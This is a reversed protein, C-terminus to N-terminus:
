SGAGAPTEDASKAAEIAQRLQDAYDPRGGVLVSAVKGDRDIVVTQPIARVGYKEATAGDIDLAVAIKLELREMADEITQRDEQLNVAFFHVEDGELAAAVEELKPMTQMCPGCWSAWFDLVVVKGREEALDLKGGDLLDLQFEPAPSGALSSEAGAAPGGAADATLYRPDPAPRLQWSAYLLDAAATEIEQGLLLQDVESVDVQCNGLLPSKGVVKEDAVRAPTFSLRVGDRRVAQLKTTGADPADAADADVSADDALIADGSEGGAGAQEDKDDDAGKKDATTAPKKLWIIRIIRDRAVQKSELRVEVNLSQESMSELRGRLFDGGRSEILHTPPNNRQMRPLTLLRDRKKEDILQPHSGGFREWAQISDHPLFESEIVSSRFTVGRDDITALECPIRDGGRLWLLQGRSDAAATAEPDRQGGGLANLVGFVGAPRVVVQRARVLKEQAQRHQQAALQKPGLDQPLDRYIIRGSVGNKLSSGNKSGQPHWVICSGGANSEGNALVGRVRIGDAQFKGLRGDPPADAKQSGLSALSRLENVPLVLAGEVGPRALHVKGDEVKTFEGSLRTGDYLAARVAAGELEAPEALVVRGIETAVIRLEKGGEASLVFEKSAGDYTPAESYEVTGDSRQVYSRNAEVEAPLDGVWQRVVLHELRVDGQKNVLRIGRNLVPSKDAVEVEAMLRGEVSYVAVRGSEQDYFLRLQIRGAGPQLNKIRALDAEDNRERVLVLSRNWVELAFMSEPPKNQEQANGNGAIRRLARVVNVDVEAQGGGFAISFDCRTKWSLEVEISARPPIHCEGLILAGPKDAIVHGAEETWVREVEGKDDKQQETKGDEKWGALGDPGFYQLGSTEGQRLLRHVQDRGIRLRGFQPSDVELAEASLAALSGYVVDGGALEVAFEAGNKAPEGLQPFHAVSIASLPFQFAETAADCQWHLINPDASDSLRGALFDGNALQLVPANLKEAEAARSAPCCVGGVAAAVFLWRVHRM